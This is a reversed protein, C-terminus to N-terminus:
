KPQVQAQDHIRDNPHVIVRDSETLGSLVEAELGNRRGIEVTRKRAINNQDVVYVAWAETNPQSAVAPERSDTERFLAGTPVKVVDNKEWIVIEAEVRYGDGLSKRSSYPEDFNAIVHVRQEEVGLASLKLYGSPEVLRVSAALPREGGWHKLWVMQGKQIKVADTSLVEIDVELDRPDGVELLPTGQQVVTESEQIVKLVVGNIPSTLRLQWKDAEDAALPKSRLLAANALDHEYRAIEEAFRAANFEETRSRVLMESDHVEQPSDAGKKVLGKRRELDTKAWEVGLIAKAKAAEASQIATATAKARLEAQAIQRTDLLSPDIPDIVALERIPSSDSRFATAVNGHDVDDTLTRPPKSKRIGNGNTPEELAASALSDNSEEFAQPAHVPDGARAKIRHLRGALPASVLYRDRVRTKGDESVTVTLSGKTVRATDVPTPKPMFGYGIAGVIGALICLWLLQKLFRM